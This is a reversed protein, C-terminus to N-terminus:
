AGLGTVDFPIAIPLFLSPDYSNQLTITSPNSANTDVTLGTEPLDFTIQTATAMGNTMPITVTGATGGITIGTIGTLGEGSITVTSGPTGTTISVGNITITSVDTTGSVYPVVYFSTPSTASGGTTTVTIAGTLANAPLTFTLTTDSAVNGNAPPISVGGVTVNDVGALFGSGTVIVSTQEIANGYTPTFSTVTPAAANNASSCGLTVGLALGPLLVCAAAQRLRTGLISRASSALISPEM